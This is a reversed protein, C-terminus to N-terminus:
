RSPDTSCKRSFEHGTERIWKNAVWKEGLLVPCGAHYTRSDEDGNRHLNFWFAAAGKIAPVRARPIPFVTAGGAIVDTLYFMWTAMRDGSHLNFATVDNGRLADHHVDYNGGIGYSLVQLDECHATSCSPRQQEPLDWCQWTSLGTVQEVRESIKKVIKDMINTLWATQSIRRKDGKQGAFTKSRQLSPLALAKIQEIEGDFIVDHFLSIKPHLNAIEKKAPLFPIPTKKLYCYLKSLERPTKINRRCLAEYTDRFKNLPDSPRVIKDAKAESNQLTSKYKKLTAYISKDNPVLDNLQEMYDVSSKLSGERYHCSSLLKLSKELVARQDQHTRDLMKILVELWSSAGYYDEENYLQEAIEYVEDIAMPSTKFNYIQGNILNYIMINYVNRLREISVSAGTIDDEDPWISLERLREAIKLFEKAAGDHIVELREVIGEWTRKFRRIARFQNIPNLMFDPQGYGQHHVTKLEVNLEQLDAINRADTERLFMQLAALLEGEGNYLLKLQQISTHVDCNGFVMCLMILSIKLIM